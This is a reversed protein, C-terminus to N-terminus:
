KKMLHMPYRIMPNGNLRIEFWYKGQAQFMVNNFKAVVTHRSDTNTLTFSTPEDEAIISDNDPAVLRTQQTFTGYGNCWRNAIFMVEHSCPFTTASITEFLGQFSFKGREDKLVNDCLITFQLDPLIAAQGTM